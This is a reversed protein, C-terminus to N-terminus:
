NKIKVLEQLDVQLNDLIARVEILEDLSQIIAYEKKTMEIDITNGRDIENLVKLFEEINEEVKVLSQTTHGISKHSYEISSKVEELLSNFNNTADKVEQNKKNVEMPKLKTVSSNQIIEKSRKSFSQVFSIIVKVQTFLYILLLTLASYLVYQLLKYFDLIEKYYKQHILILKDFEVILALNTNYISHVTKDILIKTYPNINKNQDKFKQVDSYFKNWLVVIKNDLQNILSSEIECLSSERNRMNELFYKTLYDLESSNKSENHHIYFINKSIEQTFGKQEIIDNLVNAKITNQKSINQSILALIVSLLFIIVGVVKIKKM